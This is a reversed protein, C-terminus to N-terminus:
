SSVDSLRKYVNLRVADSQTLDAGASVLMRTIKIHGYFAAYHLPTLHELRDHLDLSAGNSMLISTVEDSGTM